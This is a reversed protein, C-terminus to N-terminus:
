DLQPTRRRMKKRVTPALAAYGPAIVQWSRTIGPKVTLKRMQWLDLNAYEERSPPRPGVMSLDGKLVSWLQPLEDIRYRRLVRGVRTVRPNRNAGDSMTRFKYGAVPRGFSGLV